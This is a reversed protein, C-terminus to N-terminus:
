VTDYFEISEGEALTVIAKKWDPRRGSFRGMRRVKGMHAQTRVSEVKVGFLKQVADAIEHKNASPEVAFVYQNGAEQMRTTKETLLPRQIIGFRKRDM